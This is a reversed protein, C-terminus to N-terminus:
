NGGLSNLKWSKKQIGEPTKLLEIVLKQQTNVAVELTMQAEKIQYQIHEKDMMTQIDREQVIQSFPRNGSDYKLLLEYITEAKTNAKYYDEQYTKERIAIKESQLANTFSLVSLIMMCLVVFIMLISSAGLGIQVGRRKKHM